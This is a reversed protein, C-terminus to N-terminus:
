KEALLEQLRVEVAQRDFGRELYRLTGKRDVLAITPLVEIRYATSAEDQLDLVVPYTVGHKEVFGRAMREPDEREAANVGIVTLGRDRYKLWIEKEMVPAEANCPPCWSAFWTLLVVKGKLGSLRVQKGDLAKLEWDPAESGVKAFAEAKKEALAKLEAPTLDTDGQTYRLPPDFRRDTVKTGAPFSFALEHAGVAQNMQVGEMKYHSFAARNVAGTLFILHELTKLDRKGPEYTVVVEQGRTTQGRPTSLSQTVFFKQIAYAPTTRITVAVEEDGRTGSLSVVGAGPRVSNWTVGALLDASQHFLFADAADRAFEIGVTGERRTSEAHGTEQLLRQLNEQFGMVYHNQVNGQADMVTVDRKWGRPSLVLYERRQSSVPEKTIAARAGAPGRASEPLDARRHLSVYSLRASKVAAEDKKLRAIVSAATPAAPKPQAAPKPKAPAAALPTTLALAFWALLSPYRTM